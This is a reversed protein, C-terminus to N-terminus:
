LTKNNKPVIKASSKVKKNMKDIIKILEVNKRELLHTYIGLTMNIDSHGLRKSVAVIDAGNNILLTAHSHRLDHMRIKKVGSTKIGEQFAREFTSAGLPELDGFLYTGKSNILPLLIDYTKKDIDIKRISGKTKPKKVSEVGHRMSKNITIKMDKSVDCKLLAKAESRRMGSYYLLTFYAMCPYSNVCKIFKNFEEVEWINYEKIEELHKKFRDLIISTDNLDYIKNAYRFIAKILGIVRNKTKTSLKTNSLQNRWDLLRAKSIKCYELELLDSAYKELVQKNGKKTEDNCELSKTYKDFYFRLNEHTPLEVDIRNNDFWEKAEKSSKFGRKKYRKREGSIKDIFYFDLTYTRDKERRVAM